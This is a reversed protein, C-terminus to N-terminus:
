YPNAESIAWQRGDRSKELIICEYKRTDNERAFKQFAEWSEFTKKIKEM